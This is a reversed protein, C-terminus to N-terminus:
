YLFNLFFHLFFMFWAYDLFSNVLCNLFLNRTKFPLTDEENELRSSLSYDKDLEQILKTGENVHIFDTNGNDLM